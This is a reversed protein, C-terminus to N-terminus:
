AWRRAWAQLMLIVWLHHPRNVRGALHDAWVKRVAKADVFGTSSLSTESILDEAWERLPGRLWDGLPISFGMKPQQTLSDPVYRRLIQRLLWKGKGDRILMRRPLTWSKEVVRHDLLPIRGELSVAMTARDLKDLIDGPLYTLMDMARLRSVLDPIDRPLTADNWPYAHTDKSLSAHPWLSVLSAYMADASPQSLIDAGKHIKDGPHSPRLSAPALASAADFIGPPVARLAAGAVARLPSPIMGTTRWMGDIALYRTYGGFVEDGGDGSLSVTVDRRAMQSVLYTPIQSYDAFPEDFMDPLLPIVARTEEPSVILETHDTGLHKAIAAARAAENFQKEQFGITFTKVPRSSQAQMLAVVTPSDIGGSLFAGVPVDAVMRRGVADTLLDAVDDIIEEDSRPDLAAQGAIAKERVNWYCDLQERGSEDITLIHGPPLKSIGEFISLPAPVYGLRLYAAVAEPSIRPKFAPHARLAKLESTFLFVNDQRGYYLPKIGLRDRVLYLKREAKDWLAFAFMGIFRQTAKEVGWAACAEILVETDSHGRWNRGPLDAAVDRANYIEGNYAIVFRGDASAMPQHGAPSLDVIALRRHGFAVGASPEVWVDGEDPGRYTLVDAMAKARAALAAADQNRSHNIFGTIGCM